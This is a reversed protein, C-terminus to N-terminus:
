LKLKRQWGNSFSQLSHLSYLTRYSKLFASGPPCFTLVHIVKTSIKRSAQERILIQYTSSPEWSQGVSQRQETVSTERLSSFCLGCASGSQVKHQHQPGCKWRQSLMPFGKSIWSTQSLTGHNKNGPM